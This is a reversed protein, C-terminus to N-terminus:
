RHSGLIAGALGLPVVGIAIWLGGGDTLSNRLFPATGTAVLLLWSIGFAALLWAPAVQIATRFVLPFALLLVLGGYPRHASEDADRRALPGVLGIVVASGLGFLVSILRKRRHGAM